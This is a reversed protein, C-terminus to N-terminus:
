AQEEARSPGLSGRRWGHDAAEQATTMTPPPMVGQQSAKPSGERLFRRHVAMARNLSDIAESGEWCGMTEGGKWNDWGKAVREPTGGEPTYYLHWRWGWWPFRSHWLKYTYASDPPYTEIDVM